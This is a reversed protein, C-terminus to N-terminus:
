ELVDENTVKAEYLPAINVHKQSNNKHIQLGAPKMM